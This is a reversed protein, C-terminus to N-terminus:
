RQQHFSIFSKGRLKHSKLSHRQRRGRADALLAPRAPYSTSAQCIGVEGRAGPFTIHIQNWLFICFSLWLALFERIYM